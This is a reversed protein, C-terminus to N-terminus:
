GSVAYAAIMGHQRTGSSWGPAGNDSGGAALALGAPVVALDSWGSNPLSPDRLSARWIETGDAVLLARLVARTTSLDDSYAVGAFVLTGGDASFAVDDSTFPVHLSALSDGTATSLVISKSGWESRRDRGVLAGLSGDQSLTMGGGMRFRRQWVVAGTRVSRSTVVSISRRTSRDYQVTTFLAAADLPAVGWVAGCGPMREGIAEWRLSGDSTRIGAETERPCGARAPETGAGLLLISGDRAVTSATPTTEYAGRGFRERWLSAGTTPDFASVLMRSTGSGAPVATATFAEGSTGVALTGLPRHSDPVPVSWRAAGTSTDLAILTGPADWRGDAVFVTADDPSVAFGWIDGTWELSERWVRAGTAADIALVFPYLHGSTQEFTGGLVYARDGNSSALIERMRLHEDGHARRVVDTWIPASRESARATTPQLAVSLLLLVLALACRRV